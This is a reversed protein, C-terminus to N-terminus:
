KNKRRNNVKNVHRQFSEKDEFDEVGGAEEHRPVDLQTSLRITSKDLKELASFGIERVLIHKDVDEM